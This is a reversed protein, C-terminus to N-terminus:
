SMASLVLTISQGKDVRITFNGAADSTTGQSTGKITISAGTLPANTEAAVVRGTVTLKPQQAFSFLTIFLLASLLYFSRGACPSPNM